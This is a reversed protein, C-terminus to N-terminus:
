CQQLFLADCHEARSGQVHGLSARPPSPAGMFKTPHPMKAWPDISQPWYDTVIPHLVLPASSLKQRDFITM